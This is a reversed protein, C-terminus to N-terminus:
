GSGIGIRDGSILTGLYRKWDTFAREPKTLSIRRAALGAIWNGDPDVSVNTATLRQGEENEFVFTEHTLESAYAVCGTTYGLKLGFIWPKDPDEGRQTPDTRSAAAEDEETEEEEEDEEEEDAEVEISCACFRVCGTRSRTLTEISWGVTWWDVSRGISSIIPL